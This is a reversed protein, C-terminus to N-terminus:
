IFIMTENKLITDHQYWHGTTYLIQSQELTNNQDPLQSFLTYTYNPM